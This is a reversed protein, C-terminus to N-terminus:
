RVRALGIAGSTSVCYPVLYTLAIRLLLPPSIDGALLLHGQNIITLITGVILATMLARRVILRHRWVCRGCRREGDPLRYGSREDLPRGCRACPETASPEAALDATAIADGGKPAASRDASM